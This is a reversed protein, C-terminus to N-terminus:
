VSLPLTNPLCGASFIQCWLFIYGDFRMYIQINPLVHWYWGLRFFSFQRKIFGSLRSADWRLKAFLWCFIDSMLPFYKWWIKGSYSNMGRFYINPPLYIWWFSCRSINQYDLWVAHFRQMKLYKFKAFLRISFKHYSPGLISRPATVLEPPTVLVCTRSDPGRSQLRKQGPRTICQHHM